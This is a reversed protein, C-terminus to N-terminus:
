RRENVKRVAVGPRRTKRRNFYGDIFLNKSFVSLNTIYKRYKYFHVKLQTTAQRSSLWLVPKAKRPLNFVLRSKLIVLIIHNKRGNKKLEFIRFTITIIMMIMIMISIYVAGQRNLFSLLILRTCFCAYVCLSM